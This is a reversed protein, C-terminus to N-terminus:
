NKFSKKAEFIIYIVVNNNNNNNNDNDGDDDDNNDNNRGGRQERDRNRNDNRNHIRFARSMVEHRYVQSYGSYQMRNMLYQLHKKMEEEPLHKSCNRMIRLAENVLVNIM